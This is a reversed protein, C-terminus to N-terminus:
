SVAGSAFLKGYTIFLVVCTFVFFVASIVAVARDITKVKKEDTVLGLTILAKSFSIALHTSIVGIFLFGLFEIVYFAPTGYTKGLLSMAGAHFPLLLISLMGTDRQILTKINRKRYDIKVTDNRRFIIYLSLVAHLTFVTALTDAFAKTLIPNYIYAIYAVDEYIGHAFFLAFTLIGLVANIKKLRM